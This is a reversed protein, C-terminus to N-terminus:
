AVPALKSRARRLRRTENRRETESAEMDVGGWIGHSQKSTIAFTLCSPQGECGSCIRKATEKREALEEDTEWVGEHEQRTAFFVEPDTEACAPAGDLVPILLHTAL